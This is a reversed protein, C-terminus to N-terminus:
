KDYRLSEKIKPKIVEVLKEIYEVTLNGMYDSNYICVLDVEWHAKGKDGQRIYVYQNGLETSISLEKIETPTYSIDLIYSDLIKSDRRIFGLDILKEELTM